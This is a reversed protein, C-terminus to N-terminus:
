DVSKSKEWMLKLMNKRKQIEYEASLILKSNKEWTVQIKKERKLNEM